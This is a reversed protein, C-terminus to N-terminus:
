KSNTAWVLFVDEDLYRAVLALFAPKGGTHWMVRTNNPTWTHAWGYGYLYDPEGVGFPETVYGRELKRIATPPLVRRAELARHWAYLEDVTSLMGGNAKLSWYPGDTAWLKDLPSGWDKGERYGHAVRSSDWRPLVYGTARLGAPRFLRDHLYSEYPRGSAKEIIAGLISYGANSYSYGKGPAFLLRAQWALTLLSDRPMVVYDGAFGNPMGSSQTLLQHITIVAKDAPATPFFRGISDTVSLAGDAELALIGAATFQKTISGFDILTNPTFPVGKERNALGYGKRLLIEGGGVLLAVGAVGSDAAARLISDAKQGLRGRIIASEVRLDVQARGASCGAVLVASLILASTACAMMAAMNTYSM